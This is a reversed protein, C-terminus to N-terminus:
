GPAARLCRRASWGICSQILLWVAVAALMPGGALATRGIPSFATLVVSAVTFYGCVAFACLGAARAVRGDIRLWRTGIGCAVVTLLAAAITVYGTVDVANALLAYAPSPQWPTGRAALSRWAVETLASQAGIIALVLAATRRTQAVGLEAQFEAAIERVDGFEDVARREADRRCLGMSEYGAAADVLGDRAETVLDATARRPGHLRRRLEGIYADIV